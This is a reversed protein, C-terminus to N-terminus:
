SEAGRRYKRGRKEGESEILGQELLKKLERGAAKSDMGAVTAIDGTSQWEPTVHDIISVTTVEDRDDSDDQASLLYVTKGDKDAAQVKKEEILRDLSARVHPELQHLWGLWHTVESSTYTKKGDNLCELIDEDLERRMDIFRKEHDSQELELDLKAIFDGWDSAEIRKTGSDYFEVVVSDSAVAKVVYPEGEDSEGYSDVVVDKLREDVPRLDLETQKPPEYPRVETQEPDLLNTRYCLGEEPVYREHWSLEDIEEGIREIQGELAKERDGFSKASSKKADKVDLLNKQVDRMEAVKALLKASPPPIKAEAGATETELETAAPSLDSTPAGDVSEEDGDTKTETTETTDEGAEVHSDESETATTDLAANGDTVPDLLDDNTM